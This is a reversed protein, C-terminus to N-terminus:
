SPIGYREMLKIDKAWYFVEIDNCTAIFCVGIKGRLFVSNSGRCGIRFNPRSPLTGSYLGTYGSPQLLVNNLYVKVIYGDWYVVGFYWVGKKVSGLATAHRAVGDFFVILRENIPDYQVGYQIDTSATDNKCILYGNTTIADANFTFGLCLPATTIDINSHSNCYFCDSSGNLSRVLGYYGAVEKDIINLKLHSDNGKSMGYIGAWDTLTSCRQNLNPDIYFLCEPPLKIEQNLINIM